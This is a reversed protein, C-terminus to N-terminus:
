TSRSIQEITCRRKRADLTLVLPTPVGFGDLSIVDPVTPIAQSGGM